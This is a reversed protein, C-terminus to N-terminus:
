QAQVIELLTSPLTRRSYAANEDAFEGRRRRCESNSLCVPPRVSKVARLSNKAVTNALSRSFVREVLLRKHNDNAGARRTACAAVGTTTLM